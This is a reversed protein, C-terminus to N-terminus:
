ENKIDAERDTKIRLVKAVIEEVQQRSTTAFRNVFVFLGSVLLGFLAFGSLAEGCVYPRAEASPVVDGYGVTTLTMVSLYLATPKDHRLTGPHATETMGKACYENAFAVLVIAIIIPPLVLAVQSLESNKSEGLTITLFVALTVVIGCVALTWDSRLLFFESPFGDSLYNKILETGLLLGFLLAFIGKKLGSRLVVYRELAKDAATSWAMWKYKIRRWM